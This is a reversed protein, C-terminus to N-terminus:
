PVPPLDTHKAPHSTHCVSRLRGLIPKLELGAMVCMTSARPHAHVVAGADPRNRYVEGHLPLEEPVHYGDLETSSGDFDLERIHDLTTYKLGFDRGGRCRLLMRASGPLRLSAHGLGGGRYIGEVALIRHALVLRTRLDATDAMM